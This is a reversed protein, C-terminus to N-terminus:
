LHPLIDDYLKYLEFSSSNWTIKSLDYSFFPHLRWILFWLFVFYVFVTYMAAIVTVFFSNHYITICLNLSLVFNSYWFLFYSDDRYIQKCEFGFCIHVYKPGQWVDIISINGCFLVMGSRQCFGLYPESFHHCMLGTIKATNFSIFYFLFCVWFIKKAILKIKSNIIAIFLFFAVEFDTSM